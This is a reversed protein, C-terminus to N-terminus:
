INQTFDKKFLVLACAAVMFFLAIGGGIWWRKMVKKKLQLSSEHIKELSKVVTDTKTKILEVDLTHTMQHLSNRLFFLKGIQRKTDMGRQDLYGLLEKEAELKLEATVFAKRIEQAQKYTHCRSCLSENILEFSAHVVNHSNHCTVCTPAKRGVQSADYHPSKLYNEKIGVHCKGCFEAVNSPKPVGLFGKAPDMATAEDTPDGGHCGECQNGMKYHISKEWLSIPEALKGGLQEHCSICVGRKEKAEEAGQSRAWATQYGALLSLLVLCVLTIQRLSIRVSFCSIKFCTGNM